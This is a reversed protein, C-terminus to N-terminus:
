NENVYISFSWTVLWLMTKNKEMNALLKQKEKGADGVAETEM